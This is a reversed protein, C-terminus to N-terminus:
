PESELSRASTVLIARRRAARTKPASSPGSRQTTTPSVGWSASAAWAAPIAQTPTGLWLKLASCNRSPPASQTMSDRFSPRGWAACAHAHEAAWRPVQSGEVVPGRELGAQQADGPLRDFGLSPRHRVELRDDVLAEGLGQGLAGGPRGAATKSAQRSGPGSESRRNKVRSGAILLSSFWPPGVTPGAAQSGFRGGARSSRRLLRHRAPTRRPLGVLEPGTDGCKRTRRPEH